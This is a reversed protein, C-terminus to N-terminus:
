DMTSLEPNQRNPMMRSRGPFVPVELGEQISSRDYSETDQIPCFTSDIGVDFSEMRNPINQESIPMMHSRNMFNPVHRHLKDMFNPIYRDVIIGEHTNYNQM